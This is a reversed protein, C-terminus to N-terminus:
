PSTRVMGTRLSFPTSDIARSLMIIAASYTMDTHTAIDEETWELCRGRLPPSRNSNAVGRKSLFTDITRTWHTSVLPM